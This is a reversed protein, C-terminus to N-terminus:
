RRGGGGITVNPMMGGAPFSGGTFGGGTFGGGRNVNTRNNSAPLIVRDGENLGSVIEIMSDNRIGIQVVVMNQGESTLNNLMGAVAGDLPNDESRTQMGEPRNRGERLQSMGQPSTERSGDGGERPIREGSPGPGQGPNRYGLAGEPVDLERTQRRENSSGFTVDERDESSVLVFSVGRTSQVAEAPLLLTNGKSAIVIKVNASMGPKLHDTEELEVTVPYSAVGNSVTGEDAIKMVKGNYSGNAFADVTVIAAQELQINSIDLEDINVNIKLRDYDVVEGLNTNNAITDGVAINFSKLVGDIPAVIPRKEETEHLEAIDEKIKDIDLLKKHIDLLINEKSEDDMANKYKNQLQQLDLENKEKELEYSKLRSSIDEQAFVILTDGAKVQDGESFKVEAVKGNETPKITARSVVELSGTGSVSLEIAGRRVETTMVSASVVDKSDGRFYFYGASSVTILVVASVLLWRKLKM